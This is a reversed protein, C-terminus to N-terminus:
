PTTLMALDATVGSLHLSISGGAGALSPGSYAIFPMGASESVPLVLQVRPLLASMWSDLKVEILACRIRRGNATTIQRYGTLAARFTYVSGDAYNLASFRIEDSHQLAGGLTAPLSGLDRLGKVSIEREVLGSNSQHRYLTPEGQHQAYLVEIRDHQQIHERLAYLSTGDSQRLVHRARMESNEWVVEQAPIGQYDIPHVRYYVPDSGVGGHYVFDGSVPLALAAGSVMVAAM